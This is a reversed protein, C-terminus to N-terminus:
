YDPNARALELEAKRNWQLSPPVPRYGEWKEKNGRDMEALANHSVLLMRERFAGSAIDNAFTNVISAQNSGAYPFFHDEIVGQGTYRTHPGIQDEIFSEFVPANRYGTRGFLFPGSAATALNKQYRAQFDENGALRDIPLMYRNHKILHAAYELTRDNSDAWRNAMEIAAQHQVFIGDASFGDPGFESDPEPTPEDLYVFSEGEVGEAILNQMRRLRLERWFKFDAAQLTELEGVLGILEETPSVEGDENLDLPDFETM